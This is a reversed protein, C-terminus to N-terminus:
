SYDAFFWQLQEQVQGPEGLDREFRMWSYL